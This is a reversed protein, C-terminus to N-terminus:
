IGVAEYGGTEAVRTRRPYYYPQRMRDLRRKRLVMGGILGATAVGLALGAGILIKGPHLMPRAVRGAAVMLRGGPGTAQRFERIAKGGGRRLARHSYLIGYRIPVSRDEGDRVIARERGRRKQVNLLEEIAERLIRPQTWLARFAVRGSKDILFTPNAGSGYSRHVSGRLDDVLITIDIDEEDRLLEAAQIKEEMSGHAPIQDGPHAERVYIFVFKIEGDEFTQALDKLGSISGATMPCTASGFTLVVNQRGRFDSLRVKEGDLSRLQFDPAKDGPKPARWPSRAFEKVLQRRNFSEYNYPQTGFM